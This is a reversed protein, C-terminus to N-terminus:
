EKVTKDKSDKLTYVTRKTEWTELDICALLNIMSLMHLTQSRYPSIGELREQETTAIFYGREEKLGSRKAFIPVGKERLNDIVEYVIRTDIGVVNGIYAISVKKEKGRPILELVQKERSSLEEM